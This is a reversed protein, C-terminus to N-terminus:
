RATELRTSLVGFGGSQGAWLPVYPHRISWATRHVPHSFRRVRRHCTRYPRDWVPRCTDENTPKSMHAGEWDNFTV